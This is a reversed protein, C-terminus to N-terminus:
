TDRLEPRRPGFLLIIHEKWLKTRLGRLGKDLEDPIYVPEPDLFKPDRYFFVVTPNRTHSTGIRVVVDKLRNIDSRLKELVREPNKKSSATEKIEVLLRVQEDNKKRAFIALDIFRRKDGTENKMYYNTTVVRNRPKTLYLRHYLHSRIDNENRPKFNRGYDDQM